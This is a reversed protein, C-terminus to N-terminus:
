LTQTAFNKTDLLDSTDGRFVKTKTKEKIVPQIVISDINYVELNELVKKLDKNISIDLGSEMDKKNYNKTLSGHKCNFDGDDM